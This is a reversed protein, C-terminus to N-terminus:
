APKTAIGSLSRMISAKLKDPKVRLRRKHGLRGQEIGM